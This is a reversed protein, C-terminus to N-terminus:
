HEALDGPQNTPFGGRALISNVNGEAPLALGALPAGAPLRGEDKNYPLPGHTYNAGAVGYGICLLM